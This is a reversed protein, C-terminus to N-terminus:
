ISGHWILIVPNKPDITKSYVEYNGIESRSNIWENVEVMTKVFNRDSVKNNRSRELCYNFNLMDLGGLRIESVLEEDTVCEFQETM